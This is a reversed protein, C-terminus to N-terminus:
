RLQRQGSSCSHSQCEFTNDPPIWGHVLICPDTEVHMGIRDGGGNELAIVVLRLDEGERSIEHLDSPEETAERLLGGDSGTVFGGTCAEDEMPYEGGVPEVAVDDSGGEDGSLGAIVALGIAEVGDHEGPEVAAAVEGGDM